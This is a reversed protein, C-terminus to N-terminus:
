LQLNNYKSSLSAFCYQRISQLSDPISVIESTLFSGKGNKQQEEQSNWNIVEVYVNFPFAITLPISINSNQDECYNLGKTEEDIIQGLKVYSM